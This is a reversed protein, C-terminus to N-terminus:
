FVEFLRLYIPGKWEFLCMCAGLTYWEGLQWNLELIFLLKLRDHKKGWERCILKGAGPFQERGEMGDERLTRASAIIM